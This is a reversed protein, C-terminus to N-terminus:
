VQAGVCHWDDDFQSPEPPQMAPLLGLPVPHLSPLAQECVSTQVPPTQPPVAYTQVGFWHWDTDVQLPEPPQVGVLLGLPVPQLSPSAHVKLSTQVAPMQAPVEWGQEGVCHWALETQLPLPPQVIVFLGLLVAQV